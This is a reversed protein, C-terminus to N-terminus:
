SSSRTRKETLGAAELIRNVHTQRYPVKATIDEILTGERREAVIAAALEKRAADLQPKLRRYTRSARDLRAETEASVCEMM